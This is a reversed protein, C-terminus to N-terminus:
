FVAFLCAGYISSQPSTEEAFIPTENRSCSEFIFSLALKSVLKLLEDFDHSENSMKLLSSIAELGTLYNFNGQCAILIESERMLCFALVEAEMEKDTFSQASPGFVEEKVNLISAIIESLLHQYIFVPDGNKEKVQRMYM